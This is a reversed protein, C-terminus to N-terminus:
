FKGALDTSKKKEFIVGSCNNVEMLYFLMHLIKKIVSAMIFSMM